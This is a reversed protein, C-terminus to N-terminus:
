KAIKGARVWAFVNLIVTVAILVVSALLIARITDEIAAFDGLNVRRNIEFLQCLLSIACLGFSLLSHRHSVPAEPTTLALVAFLWAGAGLVLSGINFM